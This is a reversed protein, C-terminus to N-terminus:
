GDPFAEMLATLEAGGLGVPSDGSAALVLAAIEAPTATWFVDPTWGFALGMHGALRIAASAFEEGARPPPGHAAHHLPLEVLSMARPSGGEGGAECATGRGTGPLFQAGNM